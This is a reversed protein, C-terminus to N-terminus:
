LIENQTIELYKKIVNSDYMTGANGNDTISKFCNCGNFFIIHTTTKFEYAYVWM